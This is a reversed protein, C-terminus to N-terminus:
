GNIEATIQSRDHSIGDKYKVEMVKLEVMFSLSTLQQLMASSFLLEDCSTEYADLQLTTTQHHRFCRQDAIAAFEVRLTVARVEAPARLMNLALLVKPEEDPFEELNFHPDCGLVFCNHNFNDSYHYRYRKATGGRFQEMQAPTIHWLFLCDRIPPVVSMVREVARSNICEAAAPEFRIDLIDVSCEIHLSDLGRLEGFPVALANWGKADDEDEYCMTSRCEYQLERLFLTFSILMSKVGKPVRSSVLYCSVFDAHEKHSLELELCLSDEEVESPPEVIEAMKLDETEGEKANDDVNENANTNASKSKTNADYTLVNEIAFRPGKLTEKRTFAEFDAGRVDWVMTNDYHQFIFRMIDRPVAIRECDGDGDRDPDSPDCPDCEATITLLTHERIFGFCLLEKNRRMSLSHEASNPGSSSVLKDGRTTLQEFGHEFRSTVDSLAQEYSMVQRQLELKQRELEMTQLKLQNEDFQDPNTLTDLVRQTPQSLPTNLM